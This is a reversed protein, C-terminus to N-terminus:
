WAGSRPAGRCFVFCITDALCMSILSITLPWLGRGHMYCSALGRQRLFVSLKSGFAAAPLLLWHLTDARLPLLMVHLTGTSSHCLAPLTSSFLERDELDPIGEAAGGAKKM